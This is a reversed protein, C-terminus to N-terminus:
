SDYNMDKFSGNCNIASTRSKPDRQLLSTTAPNWLRYPTKPKIPHFLMPGSPNFPGRM